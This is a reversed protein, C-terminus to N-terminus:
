SRSTYLDELNVSVRGKVCQVEMTPTGGEITAPQQTKHAM